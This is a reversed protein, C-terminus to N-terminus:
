KPPIMKTNKLWDCELAEEATIRKSPDLTLMQDLLNLPGQPLM